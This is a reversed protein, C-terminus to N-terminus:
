AGESGRAAERRREIRAFREIIERQLRERDDISGAKVTKGRKSAKAADPAEKVRGYGGIMSALAKSKREADAPTLKGSEIGQEMEDLNRMIVKHMRKAIALDARKRSFNPERPPKDETGPRLWSERAIWRCITTVSRGVAKAIEAQTQNTTTVLVHARAKADTTAM